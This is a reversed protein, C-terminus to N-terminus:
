LLFYLWKVQTSLGNLIETPKEKLQQLDLPPIFIGNETRFNSNEFPNAPHTKMALSMRYFPHFPNKQPDYSNHSSDALTSTLTSILESFETSAVKHPNGLLEVIKEPNKRDCSFRITSTNSESTCSESSPQFVQEPFDDEEHDTESHHDIEADEM